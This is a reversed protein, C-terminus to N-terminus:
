QWQCGSPEQAREKKRYKHYHWLPNRCKKRCRNGIFFHTILILHGVVGGSYRQLRRIRGLPVFLWTRTPDSTGKFSAFLRVMQADSSFDMMEEDNSRYVHTLFGADSPAQYFM